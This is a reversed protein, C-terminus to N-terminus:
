QRQFGTLKALEDEDPDHEDVIKVILSLRAVYLKLKGKKWEEVQRPTAPSNDVDVTWEADIRVSHVGDFVSWNDLKMPVYPPNDSFFQMISRGNNFPGLNRDEWVYQSQGIIGEEYSDEETEMSARKVFIRGSSKM